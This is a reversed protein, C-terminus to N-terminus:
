LRVCQYVINLNILSSLVTFIDLKNFTTGACMSYISPLLPYEQQPFCEHQGAVGRKYEHKGRTTQTKGNGPPDRCVPLQVATQSFNSRELAVSFVFYNVPQSRVTKGEKQLLRVQALAQLPTILSSYSIQIDPFDGLRYNRYLTM